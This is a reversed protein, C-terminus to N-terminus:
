TNKLWKSKKGQFLEIFDYPWKKMPDTIKKFNLKKIAKHIKTILGKDSTYSAFIRDTETPLRKLQSVM